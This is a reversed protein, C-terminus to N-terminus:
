ACLQFHYIVDVVKTNVLPPARVDMQREPRNNEATSIAKTALRYGVWNADTKVCPHFLFYALVFSLTGMDEMCCCKFKQTWFLSTHLLPGQTKGTQGGAHQGGRLSLAEGWWSLGAWIPGSSKKQLCLAFWVLSSIWALIM